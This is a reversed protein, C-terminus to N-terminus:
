MYTSIYSCHNATKFCRYYQNNWVFVNFQKCCPLNFNWEISVNSISGHTHFACSLILHIYYYIEICKIFHSNSLQIMFEQLLCYKQLLPPTSIDILDFYLSELYVGFKCISVQQLRESIKETTQKLTNSFNM